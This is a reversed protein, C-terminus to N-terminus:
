AAERETKNLFSGDCPGDYLLRTTGRGCWPKLEVRARDIGGEEYLFVRVAGQWSAAVTTLGSKKGGTRSGEGRAGQVTGYFHAM